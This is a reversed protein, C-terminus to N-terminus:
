QPLYWKRGDSALRDAAPSGADTFYIAGAVDLTAEL